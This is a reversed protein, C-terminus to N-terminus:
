RGSQSPKDWLDDVRGRTEFNVFLSIAPTVKVHPGGNLGYFEQGQLEFTVSMASGKPGPGADGYRTIKGLKSDKFLSTYFKAAEEAEHDFWLFTVIKQM